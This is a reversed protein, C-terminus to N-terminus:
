ANCTKSRLTDQLLSDDGEANKRIFNHYFAWAPILLGPISILIFAKMFFIFLAPEFRFEVIHEGSNVHVAKFNFNGRLVPTPEGDVWAKWHKSYSDAYYFLGAKSNDMKFRIHNPGFDLVETAEDRAYPSHDPTVKSDSFTSISFVTSELLLEESSQLKVAVEDRWHEKSIILNGDRVYLHCLSQRSDSDNMPDKGYLIESRLYKNSYCFSQKEDIGMIVPYIPNHFYVRNLKSIVRYNNVIHFYGLHELDWPWDSEYDRTFSSLALENENQTKFFDSLDFNADFDYLQAIHKGLFLVQPDFESTTDPRVSVAVMGETSQPIDELILVRQLSKASMNKALRLADLSDTAVLYEEYFGYRRTAVGAMVGYNEAPVNRILDFVRRGIIFYDVALLPGATPVRYMPALYSWFPGLRPVAPVRIEQYKFSRQHHVEPAKAYVGPQIILPEYRMVFDAIQFVTLVGFFGACLIRISRFRVLLFVAFALYTSWLFWMSEFLNSEFWDMHLNVSKRGIPVIFNTLYYYLIEAHVFVLGVLWLVSPASIKHNAKLFQGLRVLCISILGAWATYFFASFALLVRISQYGPFYKFFTDFLGQPCVMLFFLTLTLFLFLGKFPSRSGKFFLLFIILSPIGVIFNIEWLDPLGMVYRLDTFPVLLRILYHPSANFHEKPVFISDNDVHVLEDSV